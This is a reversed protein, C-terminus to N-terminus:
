ARLRAALEPHDAAAALDAATQGTDTTLSRDAGRELLLTVLAEDGRNAAEHLPTFGGTQTADVPAGADLLLRAVDVNGAAAASHLPQVTMAGSAVVAPDAGVRLLIAACEATGLFAALHLPTFGDSSRASALSRDHHVVKSLREANGVAAADFVDLPPDHALIAAALDRRGHYLAWRVLSVGDPNAAGALSPDRTLAEELADANGEAVARFPNM